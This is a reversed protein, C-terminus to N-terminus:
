GRHAGPPNGGDQSFPPLRVGVRLYTHLLLQMEFMRDGENTVVLSTGLSDRDLTISYILNFAYPWLRRAKDDLNSSSLGFDLKVSLDAGARNPHSESTSKGLFEWRSTRAFGHQPLQKTAAHDPATGFVQNHSLRNAIAWAPQDEDERDWTETHQLWPPRPSVPNDHPM